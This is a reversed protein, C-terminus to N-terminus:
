EDRNEKNKGEKEPLNIANKVFALLLKHTEGVDDTIISHKESDVWHLTKDEAGINNFIHTASTHKVVPDDTGQIILSPAEVDELTMDLTQIMEHLQNLAQIPISQYNIHPLSTNSDKFNMIGSVGPLFSAVKNVTDMMPVLSFMKDQIFLPASVCAVGALNKPKESALLLSLAGGASFGVVVVEDAFDSIIRYGRRISNLWEDWTRDNLDYPSTGHGSLRVGMVAHGEAHLKEGFAKLEAPSSLFGHVLLVGTKAKKKHTMLYPAANEVATEKKNIDKYHRKSFKEKNWNFLRIEDDFLHHALAHDDAHITKEIADIVCEQVGKIPKAENACVLVPNELRVEDFDHDHLLKELFKYTDDTIELLETKVCTELFRDLEPCSETMLQKYHDPENLTKHLHAENDNQLLKIALYLAKHFEDKAVEKVGQDMLTSIMESAVHSINITVGKYIDMMYRDRIADSEKALFKAFIKEYWSAARRRLGFLHELSDIRLFTKTLLYKDWWNWQKRAEIAEGLRIDMDTDKLLINGELTLEENLTDPVNKSFFDISKTILNDDVRIPNFTITAPVILTPKYVQERLMEPDDIELAECWHQIRETDGNEFLDKIRRKFIDLTLALIAGGRHHKRYQKSTKSFIRFKGEDDLVRRDKIMGGEPFICVKRGKLIESALFPLLGPLNNPVAGGGALFNTFGESVNFLHHDTISRCYAGTEKYILYPPIVTEFRAFHNFLFIQGDQLLNNDNNHININIGIRSELFRFSRELWKYSKESIIFDNKNKM